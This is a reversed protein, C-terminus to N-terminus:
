ESASRKVDERLREIEAVLKRQRLFMGVLFGVLLMMFAAYAMIVHKKNTTFAGANQRQFEYSLREDFHSRLQAMFSADRKMEETCQARMSSTYDPEHTPPVDGPPRPEAPTRPDFFLQNQFLLEFENYWGADKEIEEFCKDKIPSAYPADGDQAHAVATWASVLMVIALSRM